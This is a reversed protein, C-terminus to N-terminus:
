SLAFIYLAKCSWTVSIVVSCGWWARHLGLTRVPWGNKAPFGRNSRDSM